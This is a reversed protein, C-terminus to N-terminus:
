TLICLLNKYTHAATTKHSIHFQKRYHGSSDCIFRFRLHSEDYKCKKQLKDKMGFTSTAGVSTISLDQNINEEKKLSGAKLWCELFDSQQVNM